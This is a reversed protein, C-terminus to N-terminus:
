RRPRWFGRPKGVEAKGASADVPQAAAPRSQNAPLRGFHHAPWPRGSRLKRLPAVAATSSAEVATTSSSPTVPTRAPRQFHRGSQQASLATALLLLLLAPLTRM